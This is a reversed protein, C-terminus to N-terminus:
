WRASVHYSRSSREPGREERVGRLRHPLKGLVPVEVDRLQGPPGAMCQVRHEVVEILPDLADAGPPGLGGRLLPVPVTHALHGVAVGVAVLVAEAAGRELSRGTGVPAHASVPVSSASSSSACSTQTDATSLSNACCTSTCGACPSRAAGTATSWTTWGWPRRRVVHHSAHRATHESSPRSPTTTM